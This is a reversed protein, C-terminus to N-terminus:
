VLRLPNLGDKLFLSQSLIGTKLVSRKAAASKVHMSSNELVQHSVVPTNILTFGM